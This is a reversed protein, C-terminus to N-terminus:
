MGWCNGEPGLDYNSQKTTLRSSQSREYSAVRIETGKNENGLNDLSALGGDFTM